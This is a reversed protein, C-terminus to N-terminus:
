RSIRTEVGDLAIFVLLSSPSFDHFHSLDDLFSIEFLNCLFDGMLVFPGDLVFYLSSSCGLSDSLKREM